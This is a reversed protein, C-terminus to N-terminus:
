GPSNVSILTIKGRAAANSGSCGYDDQIDAERIPRKPDLTNLRDVALTDIDSM